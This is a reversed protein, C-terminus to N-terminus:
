RGFRPILSFPRLYQPPSYRIFAPATPTVAGGAAFINLQPGLAAAQANM